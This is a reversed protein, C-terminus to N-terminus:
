QDTRLPAVDAPFLHVVKKILASHDAEGLNSVVGFSGTSRYYAVWQYIEDTLWEPCGDLVALNQTEAIREVARFTALMRSMSDCLFGHEHEFAYAENIAQEITADM